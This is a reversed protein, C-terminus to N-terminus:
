KKIGYMSQMKNVESYIDRNCLDGILRVKNLNLSDGDYLRNILLKPVVEKQHSNITNLVEIIKDDEFDILDYLIKENVFTKYLEELGFYKIVDQDYIYIYCEEVLVRNQEFIDRVTEFPLTREEGFKKFKFPEGKGSRLILTGYTTSVIKIPRTSSIEKVSAVPANSESQLTNSSASIGEKSNEKLSEKSTLM